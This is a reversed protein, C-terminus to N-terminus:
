TDGARTTVWGGPGGDSHALIDGVAFMTIPQLGGPGTIQGGGAQFRVYDGPVPIYGTARLETPCEQRATISGCALHVVQGSLTVATASWAGCGPLSGFAGIIRADLTAPCHAEQAAADAFGFDDLTLIVGATMGPRAPVPHAQMYAIAETHPSPQCGTVAVAAAAAALVGAVARPKRIKMTM